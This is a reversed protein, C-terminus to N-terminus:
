LIHFSDTNPLTNYDYFVTSYFGKGGARKFVSSSSSNNKFLNNTIEISSANGPGGTPNTGEACIVGSNSSLTNNAFTNFNIRFSFFSSGNFNNNSIASILGTNAATATNKFVVNSNFRLSFYTLGAAGAINTYFIPFEDATNEYFHNSEMNVTMSGNDTFYQYTGIAAGKQGTNYRFTCNKIAVTTSASGNVTKTIYVGSGNGGNEFYNGSQIVLGDLVITNNTNNNSIRVVNKVNDSRDADGKGTSSTFTADNKNVDGSLITHYIRHARNNIGPNGTNPFGGYITLSKNTIAFANDRNGAPLYFTDAAVYIVAGSSANTIATQLNTYANVWSTGNNLGSATKKVYIQGFAAPTLIIFFLVTLISKMYNTKHSLGLSM